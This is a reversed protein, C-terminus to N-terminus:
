ANKTQALGAGIAVGEPVSRAPGSAAREWAAGVSYAGFQRQGGARRRGYMVLLASMQDAVTRQTAAIDRDLRDKIRTRMPHAARFAELQATISDRLATMERASLVLAPHRRKLGRATRAHDDEVLRVIEDARDVIAQGVLRVALPNSTWSM